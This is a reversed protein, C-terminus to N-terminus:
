DVGFRLIHFYQQVSPIRNSYCALCDLIIRDLRLVAFTRERTADRGVYWIAPVVARSGDDDDGICGDM